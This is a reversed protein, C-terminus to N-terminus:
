YFILGVKLFNFDDRFDDKQAIVGGWPYNLTKTM